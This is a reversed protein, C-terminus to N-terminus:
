NKSHVKIVDFEINRRSGNKKTEYKKEQKITETATRFIRDETYKWTELEIETIDPTSM